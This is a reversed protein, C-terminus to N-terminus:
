VAPGGAEVRADQTVKAPAAPSLQQYLMEGIGIGGSHAVQGALEQDLMERFLQQGGGASMLHSQPVTDRMSKMLQSIFLSEFQQTAERLTTMGASANVDQAATGIKAIGM